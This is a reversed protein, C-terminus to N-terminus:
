DALERMQEDRRRRSTWADALLALGAGLMWVDKSIATGQPTPWISGPKRLGPTRAYLGMLGASFGTLATGAIAAPVV